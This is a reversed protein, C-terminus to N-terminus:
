KCDQPCTAKTEACPCGIAMCVIEQCVGDGCFDKCVGKLKKIREQIREKNEDLQEIVEGFHELVREKAEKIKELAVPKDSLQKELHDMLRQHKATRDAYKDLFEDIKPNDKAKKTFKEVQAKLKEIEKQYSALIRQFIEEKGPKEAIKKAEILKQNAYHLRLEAKKVKSFTLAMRVERWINKVFYLPRDPLIKPESIELDEASIDEDAAIKEDAVLGTEEEAMVNFRILLSAIIFVVIFIYILHKM